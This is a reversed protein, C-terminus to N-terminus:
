DKDSRALKKEVHERNRRRGDYRANAKWLARRLIAATKGGFYFTFTDGTALRCIIKEPYFELSAQKRPTNIVHLLENPTNLYYSISSTM